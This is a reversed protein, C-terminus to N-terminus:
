SGGRQAEAGENMPCPLFVAARGAKPKELSCIGPEKDAGSVTEVESGLISGLTIM